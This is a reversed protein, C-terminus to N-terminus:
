PGQPRCVTPSGGSPGNAFRSIRVPTATTFIVKASLQPKIGAPFGLSSLTKSKRKAWDVSVVGSPEAPNENWIREVTLQDRDRFRQRLWATIAVRGRAETATVRRFDCDSVDADRTLLALVARLQRANFAGVFRVVVSVESAQRASLSFTVPTAQQASSSAGSDSAAPVVVLGLAVILKTLRGTTMADRAGTATLHYRRSFRESRPHEIGHLPSGTTHQRFQRSNQVWKTGMQASRVHDLM